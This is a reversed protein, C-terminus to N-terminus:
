KVIFRSVHNNVKLFYAGSALSSIDIQNLGSTFRGNLLARGDASTISYDAVDGNWAANIVDSAPSPYIRIGAENLEQISSIVVCESEDSCANATTIEVAYSGNEGVFVNSTAGPVPNNTTCDIWQYSLNLPTASLTGNGIDTIVPNIVTFVCHNITHLTTNTIVPENSDFYIAASNTIETGDEL